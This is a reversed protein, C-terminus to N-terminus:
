NICLVTSTSKSIAYNHMSHLHSLHCNYLAVTAPLPLLLKLMMMMMMMMLTLEKVRVVTNCTVGLNLGNVTSITLMIIFNDNLLMNSLQIIWDLDHALATSRKLELTQLDIANDLFTVIGKFLFLKSTIEVVTDM